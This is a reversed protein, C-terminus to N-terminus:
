SLSPLAAEVACRPRVAGAALGSVWYKDGREHLTQVVSGSTNILMMKRGAARTQQETQVALVPSVRASEREV